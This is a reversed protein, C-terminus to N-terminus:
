KSQRKLFDVMAVDLIDVRRVPNGATDKFPLPDYLYHYAASGGEWKDHLRIGLITLVVVFAAFLLATLFGQIHEYTM